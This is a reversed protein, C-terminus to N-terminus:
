VVISSYYLSRVQRRKRVRFYHMSYTCNASTYLGHSHRGVPAESVNQPCTRANHGPRKCLRCRRGPALSAEVSEYLSPDRRTTGLAGRPRGRVTPVLPNRIEEHGLRSNAAVAEMIPPTLRNKLHWQSHIEGVQISTRGHLHLVIDHSYPLGMTMRFAGSCRPLPDDATAYRATMYQKYLSTLAHASVKGVVDKLLDIRFRHHIHSRQHQIEAYIEREQLFIASEIRNFMDYLDVTSTRIGDKLVAHSREVRSTVTTGMHLHLNTWAHVFREKYPCWHEELYRVARQCFAFDEQLKKWQEEYEAETESYVVANWSAMLKSFSESDSFLPKCKALINKNIHWACLFNRVDPFVNQIAALLARERDTVIVTPKQQGDYIESVQGLAWRYSPETESSLLCFCGFFTRNTCTIGAVNLLPLKFRNTKYTCDMLLLNPFSRMMQISLPHAWFLNQIRGTEDVEYRYYYNTSQLTDFLAQLPTRGDLAELRAAQRRNYVTKATGRFSDDTSRLACLIERPRCGAETMSHVLDYQDQDLRCAVAHGSIDAAPEHNHEGMHTLLLWKGGRRRARLEFLCGRLRSGTQRRRIEETLNLPNKYEGGLDCRLDVSKWEGDSYKRSRGISLAYGQDVATSKAYAMLADLSDFETTSLIMKLRKFQM